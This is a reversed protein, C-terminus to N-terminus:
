GSCNIERLRNASEERSGAGDDKPIRGTDQWDQWANHTATSTACAQEIKVGCLACLADAWPVRNNVVVFRIHAPFQTPGVSM